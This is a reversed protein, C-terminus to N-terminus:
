QHMYTDSPRLSNFANIMYFWQWTYETTHTGLTYDQNNIMNKATNQATALQDMQGVSLSYKFIDHDDFLLIFGYDKISNYSVYIDYTEWM